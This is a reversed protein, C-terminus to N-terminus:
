ASKRRVNRIKEPSAPAARRASKRYGASALTRAVLSNVLDGVSMGHVLQGGVHLTMLGHLSIWFMHTLELANGQLRGADIARQVISVAHDFFSHRAALLEPFADPSPQHMTFIMQYEATHSGVFAVFAMAIQRIQDVPDAGPAERARVFREFRQTCAVRVAVLLGEKGEFYNYPLTHSVGALDALRRFSLGDLGERVYLDLALETLRNRIAEIQDATLPPRAM